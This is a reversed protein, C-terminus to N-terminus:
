KKLGVVCDMSIDLRKCISYLTSVSPVRTGREIQGVFAASIGVAKGPSAQTIHKMRRAQRIKKGASKFDM